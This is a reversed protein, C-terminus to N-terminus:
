LPPLSALFIGTWEEDYPAEAAFGEAKPKSLSLGGSLACRMEPTNSFLTSVMVRFGNNNNRNNPNNRNRYACRVNNQNNNFAGGRLVRLAQPCIGRM